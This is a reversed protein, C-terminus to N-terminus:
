WISCFIKIGEDYSVSNSSIMISNLQKWDGM